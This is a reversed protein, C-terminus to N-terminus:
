PQTTATGCQRPKTADKHANANETRFSHTKTAIKVLESESSSESNNANQPWRKELGGQRNRLRSISDFDKIEQRSKEM